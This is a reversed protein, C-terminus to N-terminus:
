NTLGQPDDPTIKVVAKDAALRESRMREAEADQRKRLEARATLAARNAPTDAYVTLWERGAEDTFRPHHNGRKSSVGAVTFAIFAGKEGYNPGRLASFKEFTVAKDIAKKASAVSAFWRLKGSIKASFEGVSENLEIKVGKHEYAAM